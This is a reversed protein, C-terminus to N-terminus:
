ARRFGRKESTSPSFALLRNAAFHTTQSRAEEGSMAYFLHKVPLMAAVRGAAPSSPPWVESLVTTRVTRPSGDGVRERKSGTKSSLMVDSSIWAAASAVPGAGDSPPCARPRSSGRPHYSPWGAPGARPRAALPLCGHARDHRDRARPAVLRGTGTATWEGSSEHSRSASPPTPGRRGAGVQAM